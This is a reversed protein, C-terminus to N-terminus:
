SGSCRVYLTYAIGTEGKGILIQRTKLRCHVCCLLTFLFGENSTVGIVKAYGQEDQSRANEGIVKVKSMLGPLIM